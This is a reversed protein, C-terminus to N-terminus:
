PEPSGQHFEAPNHYGAAELLPEHEPVTSDGGDRQVVALVAGAAAARQAASAAQAAPLDGLLCVPGGPDYVPPAPVLRAQVDGLTIAGAPATPGTPTLAKVWWRAHPTLGLQTLMLRKPADRRATVVRLVKTQTRARQWAALLLARGETAWQADQEVAFDDVLFRGEQPSGLIFGHTSRLALTGPRTASFRLFRAHNDTAGRAPRWFVPSYEAYRERRRAMLQAVWEFDAGGMETITGSM